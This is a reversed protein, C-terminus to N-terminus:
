LCLFCRCGVMTTVGGSAFSREFGLARFMTRWASCHCVSTSVPIFFASTALRKPTERALTVWSVPITVFSGRLATSRIAL